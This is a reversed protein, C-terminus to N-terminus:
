KKVNIYNTYMVRNENVSLSNTESPTYLALIENKFHEEYTSEKDIAVYDGIQLEEIKDKWKNMRQVSFIEKKGERSDLKKFNIMIVNQEYVNVIRVLTDEAKGDLKVINNFDLIVLIDKEKLYQEVKILAPEMLINSINNGQNQRVKSEVSMAQNNYHAIRTYAQEMQLNILIYTGKDIQSTFM